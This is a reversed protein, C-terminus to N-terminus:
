HEAAVVNAASLRCTPPTNPLPPLESGAQKLRLLAKQRLHPGPWQGDECFPKLIFEEFVFYKTVSEHTVAGVGDVVDVLGLDPCKLGLCGYYIMGIEGVLDLTSRGHGRRLEQVPICFKLRDDVYVEIEALHRTAIPLSCLRIAM